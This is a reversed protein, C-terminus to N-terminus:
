RGRERKFARQGWSGVHRNMGCEIGEVREIQTGETVIGGERARDRGRNVGGELVEQHGQDKIMWVMVM